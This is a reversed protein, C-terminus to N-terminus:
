KTFPTKKGQKYANFYMIQTPTINSFWQEFLDKFKGGQYKRHSSRKFEQYLYEKLEDMIRKNSKFRGATVVLRQNIDIAFIRHYISFHL